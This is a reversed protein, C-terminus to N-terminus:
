LRHRSNRAHRGARPQVDRGVLTRFRTGNDAEDPDAECNDDRSLVGIDLASPDGEDYHFVLVHSGHHTKRFNAHDDNTHDLAIDETHNRPLNPHPRGGPRQLRRLQRLLWGRVAPAALRLEIGILEDSAGTNGGRRWRTAAGRRCSSRHGLTVSSECTIGRKRRISELGFSVPILTHGTRLRM